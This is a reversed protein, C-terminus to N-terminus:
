DWNEDNDMIDEANKIEEDSPSGDAHAANLESKIFSGFVPKAAKELKGLLVEDKESFNNLGEDVILKDLEDTNMQQAKILLEKLKGTIYLKDLIKNLDANAPQRSVVFGTVYGVIFPIEFELFQLIRLVKNFGINIQENEFNLYDELSVNSNTAVYKETYDKDIRESKCLKSLVNISVEPFEKFLSYFEVLIQNSVNTKVNDRGLLYDISIGLYDAIKQLNEISPAITRFKSIYSRSFGLDKEMQNISIKKEKSAERVKEYLDM